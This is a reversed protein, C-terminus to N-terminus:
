LGLFLHATCVVEITIWDDTYFVLLERPKHAYYFAVIFINSCFLQIHSILILCDFRKQM